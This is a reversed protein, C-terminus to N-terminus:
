IKEFEYGKKRIEIILNQLIAATVPIDHLLIIAGASLRSPIRKLLREGSKTKTDLSRITWGITRLNLDRVSKAIVPNMVGFPPRFLSVNQGTIQKLTTINDNLEKKVGKLGSFPFKLLHNQTHIGISHGSQVTKKVADVHESANKGTFFFTARINERELISLIMDTCSGPGDDFTLVVKKENTKLRNIVPVFLALRIDFIGWVFVAAILIAICSIIHRHSIISYVILFPLVFFIVQQLLLLLSSTM